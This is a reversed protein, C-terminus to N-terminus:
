TCCPSPEQQYLDIAPGRADSRVIQILRFFAANKELEHCNDLVIASEKTLSAFLERFFVRAFNEVDGAYESTFVPLNLKKRPHNKQAALALFYFIDAVDKEGSDIRYWLFSAHQKKLLSTVFVTKGAGPSGNVWIINATKRKKFLEFLFTREFIRTYDPPM